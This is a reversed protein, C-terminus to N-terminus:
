ETADSSEAPKLTSPDVAADTKPDNKTVHAKSRRAPENEDPISPNTVSREGYTPAPM